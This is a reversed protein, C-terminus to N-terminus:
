MTSTLENRFGDLTHSNVERIITLANERYLGFSPSSVSEKLKDQIFLDVLDCVNGSHFDGMVM